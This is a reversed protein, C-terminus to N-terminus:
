EGADQAGQPQAAWYRIGRTDAVNRSIADLLSDLRAIDQDDMGTFVEDEQANAVKSLADLVPQAAPTLYVRYGRRDAPNERRELFKGACLRDILRGATVETIELAAAITRQTAGPNRAVAAILTWKARTLGAQKAGQDFRQRMQRAVVMLKISVL